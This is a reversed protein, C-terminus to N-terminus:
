SLHDARGSAVSKKKKKSRNPLHFILNSEQENRCAALSAVLNILHIKEVM